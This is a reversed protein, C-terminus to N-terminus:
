RRQRPPRPAASAPGPAPNATPAEDDPRLHEDLFAFTRAYVDRVDGPSTVAHNAGWYTVLMADKGQRFLASFMAQSQSLSIPDQGGHILLLPTRIRDAAWFPSNRRYREPDKWPPAGLQPQTSEVTGTAGIVGYGDEPVLARAPAITSWYAALDSIGDMAVAAKFRDTQTIAAMTTYGGFSWGLLAARSTDVRGRLAPAAEVAAVVALIREAVGEAPDTLGGPPAPLSPVLVAYGHATLLRLNQFFDSAMYLPRPPAPFSSGLYPRVVLPAPAGDGRPRPLYLWSTLAEGRPGLHPAAVVEPVDTDGLGANITVVPRAPSGPRVVTLREVGADTRRRGVAARGAASAAVLDGEIRGRALLPLVGRPSAWALRRRADVVWAGSPLANVLRSGPTGPFRAAALRVPGAALTETRGQRDLGVVRDGALLVLRGGGVALIEFPGAPLAATLARWGDEFAFWDARGGARPRAYVIPTGDLWGARISVPNLTAVPELGGGLPTVGGDAADVRLLQGTLWLGDAGRRWVLLARSDPAWALLNPLLDCGPPPRVRRGTRLDLVSLLTRETEQGAPGRVPGDPRPQLDAGSSFLALRRGDPSLEMDIFAGAALERVAGTVVNVRLLKRDPARARVAAYRGSGLVTHAGEGAASRAWADALRERVQWDQRFAFPPWRDPRHFVLLEDESLWVLSRGRGGHQPTIDFWRVAGSAVTAVGLRWGYDRADIVTLRAGGPSFAGLQLGPGPDGAILPRPPGGTRLDAVRLRNLTDATAFHRDFRAAGVYPGRQEFVLWRGNPDLAQEGLSEQALLDEVTFPRAAAPPPLGALAGILALACALARM